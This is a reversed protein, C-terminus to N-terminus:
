GKKKATVENAKDRFNGQMVDRAFDTVANLEKISDFDDATLGSPEVIIHKFLYEAMKAASINQTGPIYCNDVAELAASVGIFQAKYTKGFIETEVVYTKAM